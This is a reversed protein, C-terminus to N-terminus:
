ALAVVIFICSLLHTPRASMMIMEDRQITSSNCHKTQKTTPKTQKLPRQQIFNTYLLTECTQKFM